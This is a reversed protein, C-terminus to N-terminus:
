NKNPFYYTLYKNPKYTAPSTGSRNISFSSYYQGYGRYRSLEPLMSPVYPPPPPVLYFKSQKYKKTTKAQAHPMILAIFLYVLALLVSKNKFSLLMINGPLAFRYFGNLFYDYWALLCSLGRNLLLLKIYIGSRLLNLFM